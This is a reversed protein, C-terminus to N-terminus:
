NDSENVMTQRRTVLRMVEVPTKWDSIAFGFDLIGPKIGRQCFLDRQRALDESFEAQEFFGGSM